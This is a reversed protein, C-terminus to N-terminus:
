CTYLRCIVYWDNMHVESVMSVNKVIEKVVINM